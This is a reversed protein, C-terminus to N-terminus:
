KMSSYDPLPCPNNSHAACWAKAKDTSWQAFQPSKDVVVTVCIQSAYEADPTPSFYSAQCAAEVAVPDADPTAAMSKAFCATTLDQKDMTVIGPSSTCTQYVAAIPHNAGMYPTKKTPADPNLSVSGAKLVGTQADPYTANWYGTAEAGYIIVPVTNTGVTSVAPAIVLSNLMTPIYKTGGNGFFNTASTTPFCGTQGSGPAAIPFIDVTTTYLTWDAQPVGVTVLLRQWRNLTANNLYDSQQMASYPPYHLLMVMKQAVMPLGLPLYFQWPGSCTLPKGSSGTGTPEWCTKDKQCNLVGQLGLGGNSLWSIQTAGYTTARPDPSRFKVNYGGGDAPTVSLYCANLQDRTISNQLYFQINSAVAMSYDYDSMSATKIVPYLDNTGAPLSYNVYPSDSCSVATVKAPTAKGALTRAALPQSLGFLMLAAALYASLATRLGSGSFYRMM